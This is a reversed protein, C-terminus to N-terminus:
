PVLPGLLGNSDSNLHATSFTVTSPSPGVQQTGVDYRVVYDEFPMLIVSLRIILNNGVQFISNGDNLCCILLATSFDSMLIIDNGAVESPMGLLFLRRQFRLCLKKVHLHGFVLETLKREM